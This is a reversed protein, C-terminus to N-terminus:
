NAAKLGIHTVYVSSDFGLNWLVVHRGWICTVCGGVVHLGKWFRRRRQGKWMLIVRDETRNDLSFANWLIRLWHRCARWHRQILGHFRSRYVPSAEVRYAHVYPLPCPHCRRAHRCTCHSRLQRM